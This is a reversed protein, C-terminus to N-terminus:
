RRIVIKRTYTQNGYQLRVIYLGDSYKSLDFSGKYQGNIQKVTAAYVQKGVVDVVMLHMDELATTEVTYSFKGDNSPNPYVMLEPGVEREASELEYRYALSM